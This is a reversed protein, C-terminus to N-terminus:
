RLRKLYEESISIMLSYMEVLSNKYEEIIQEVKAYRELKSNCGALAKLTFPEESTLPARMINDEM